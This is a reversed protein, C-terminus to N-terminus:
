WNTLGFARNLKYSPGSLNGATLIGGLRGFVSVQYEVRIHNIPLHPTRYAVLVQRDSLLM